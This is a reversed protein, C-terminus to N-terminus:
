WWSTTSASSQTIVRSSTKGIPTKLEGKKYRPDDPFGIRWRDPLLVANVDFESPSPKEVRSPGAYGSPKDMPNSVPDTVPPKLIGEGTPMDDAPPPILSTVAVVPAVAGRNHCEGCTVPIKKSAYEPKPKEERHCTICLRHYIERSNLEIDRDEPDRVNQASTRPQRPLRTRSPM